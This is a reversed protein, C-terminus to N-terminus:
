ENDACDANEKVISDMEKGKKGTNSHGVERIVKIKEIKIEDVNKQSNHNKKEGRGEWNQGDFTKMEM